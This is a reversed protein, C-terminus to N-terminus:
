EKAKKDKWLRYWRLTWYMALPIGLSVQAFLLVNAVTLGSLIYDVLKQATHESV